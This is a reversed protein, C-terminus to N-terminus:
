LFGPHPLLRKGFLPSSVEAAGPIHLGIKRRISRAKPWAAM